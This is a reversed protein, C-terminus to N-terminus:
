LGLEKFASRELEFNEVTYEEFVGHSKLFDDAQLRAMGLMGCLQVETIGGARLEELPSPRL